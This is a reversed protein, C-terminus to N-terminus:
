SKGGTYTRKQRRRPLVTQLSPIWNLERGDLPFGKTQVYLTAIKVFIAPVDPTVDDCSAEDACCDSVFHRCGFSMDQLNHQLITLNYEDTSIGDVMYASVGKETEGDPGDPTRARAPWGACGRARRVAWTGSAGARRRIQRSVQSRAIGMPVGRRGKGIM